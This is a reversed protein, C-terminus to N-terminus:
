KELIMISYQLPPLARSKILASFSGSVSISIRKTANQTQLANKLEDSNLRYANPSVPNITIAILHTRNLVQMRGGRKVFAYYTEPKAFV